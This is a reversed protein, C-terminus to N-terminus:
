EKTAQIEIQDDSSVVMASMRTDEDDLSEEESYTDAINLSEVTNLLDVLTEEKAVKKANRNLGYQPPILKPKYAEKKDSSSLEERIARIEAQVEESLRQWIKPSIHLSERVKPTDRIVKFARVIGNENAM